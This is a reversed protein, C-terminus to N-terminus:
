SAATLVQPGNLTVAVTHEFLGAISGDSTVITWDDSSTKMDGEGFCYIIEIALVMGEKITVDSGMLLVGPIDPDEHLSRGVGHGTLEYVVGYGNKEEIEEEIVRSIDSIKNGVRAKDIAKDLTIQGVELFREIINDKTVDGCPVYVTTATDSHWGDLIVGLDIKVVDGAKIIVDKSPLGHVIGDNVNICTGFKYGSVTKFSPEVKNEAMLGEAFNNLELTSVGVGVQAATKKLIEGAIIGSARMAKIDEPSKITISM